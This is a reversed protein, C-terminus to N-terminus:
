AEREQQTSGGWAGRPGIKTRAGVRLRRQAAAHGPTPGACGRPDYFIRDHLKNKFLDAGAAVPVEAVEEAVAVSPGGDQDIGRVRRRHQGLPGRRLSERYRVDDVGVSVGVVRLAIGLGHSQGPRRHGRMGGTRDVRADREVVARQQRDARQREVAEVHRPVRRVVEDEELRRM